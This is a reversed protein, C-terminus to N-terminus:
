LIPFRLESAKLVGGRGRVSVRLIPYLMKHGWGRHFCPFTKREGETKSFGGGGERLSLVQGWGEGKGNELMM